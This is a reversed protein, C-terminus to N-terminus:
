NSQALNFAVSTHPLPDLSYKQNDSNDAKYGGNKQWDPRISISGPFRM